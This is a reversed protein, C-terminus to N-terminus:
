STMCVVFNLLNCLQSHNTCHLKRLCLNIGSSIEVQLHTHNTCSVRFTTKLGNIIDILKYAIVLLM